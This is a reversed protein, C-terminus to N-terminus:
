TYMAEIEAEYKVIIPKRKLKLTPTLEDGGPVWETPLVTHKKIQEVRSLSANAREVGAAVEALIQPDAALAAASTDEIGHERAFTATAEPELVILATNYPRSDGIAVAVGVLPSGAKLAGEINAPSMNKGAANIILEKKRDVIRLYGDDDLEAIDGTHLWGDADITEATREPANRYGRMVLRGRVLLEGDEAISVEAGPLARGVTGLRRGTVGNLTVVASTETMGYGENIPLGVAAFFELVHLPIPAAGSLLFSDSGFGLGERVDALIEADALECEHRLADPVPRGSQELRVREIGANVARAISARRGEDPEAAFRAELTAKLKEWVRPVGLWLTPRADGVAPVAQKADAVCTVSGGSLMALYHAFVRDALHAMPLYSMLRGDPELATVELWARCTWVLNDHTLEVGKPPGTTGSTYILTAVDGPTVARWAADFDFSPDAAAELEALDATGPTAGDVVFVYQLASVKERATLVSDLFQRETVILRCGAHHLLYELQEPSSTNYVSFPTAGLHLAATDVVHGEPRNSLMVAVTDGRGVGHAALGAALSRVRGAYQSWSIEVEGGPTRLATADGCRAATAQFAECLTTASTVFPDASQRADQSSTAM